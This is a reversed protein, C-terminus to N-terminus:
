NPVSTRTGFHIPGGREVRVNNGFSLRPGEHAPRGSNGPTPKGAKAKVHISRVLTWLACAVGVAGFAWYAITPLTM